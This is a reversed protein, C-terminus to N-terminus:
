FIGPALQVNVTSILRYAGGADRLVGIEMKRGHVMVGPELDSAYFLGRFPHRAQPNALVFAVGVPNIHKLWGEFFYYNIGVEGISIVQESRDYYVLPTIRLIPEIHSPKFDTAGFLPIRQFWNDLYVEAWNLTEGGGYRIEFKDASYETARQAIGNLYSRWAAFERWDESDARSTLGVSGLQSPCNAELSDVVDDAFFQFASLINVVSGRGGTEVIRMAFDQEFDKSIKARGSPFVTRVDKVAKAFRDRQAAPYCAKGSGDTLQAATMLRAAAPNFRDLVPTQATAASVVLCSAALARAVAM